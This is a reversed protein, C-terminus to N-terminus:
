HPPSAAVWGGILSSEQGKGDEKWRAKGDRMRETLVVASVAEPRPPKVRLIVAAGCFMQHSCLSACNFALLPRFFGDLGVYNDIGIDSLFALFTCCFM